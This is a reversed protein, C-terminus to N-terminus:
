KTRWFDESGTTEERPLILRLKFYLPECELLTRIPYHSFHSIEKGSLDLYPEHPAATFDTPILYDDPGVLVQSKKRRPEGLTEGDLTYFFILFEYSNEYEYGPLFFPSYKKLFFSRDNMVRSSFHLINKKLLFLGTM